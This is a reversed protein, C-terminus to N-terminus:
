NRNRLIKFLHISVILLNMFMIPMSNILISYIVFGLSGFLNVIRFLRMDNIFVSFLVILMASYGIVEIM